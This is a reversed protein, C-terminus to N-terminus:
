LLFKKKKPRLDWIVLIFALGGRGPVMCSSFDRSLTFGGRQSGDLFTAPVEWWVQELSGCSSGTAWTLLSFASPPTIDKHLSICKQNQIAYILILYTRMGSKLRANGRQHSHLWHTDFVNFDHDHKQIVKAHVSKAAWEKEYASQLRTHYTRTDTHWHGSWGKKYDEEMVPFREHLESATAATVADGCLATYSHERKIKSWTRVRWSGRPLLATDTVWLFPVWPALIHGSCVM